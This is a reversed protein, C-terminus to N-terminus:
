SKKRDGAGAGSISSDIFFHFRRPPTPGGGWRGAYLNCYIIFHADSFQCRASQLSSFFNCNIVRTTFAGYFGKQGSVVIGDFANQMDWVCVCLSKEDVELCSAYFANKRNAHFIVPFFHMFDRVIGRNNIRHPIQQATHFNWVRSGSDLNLEM